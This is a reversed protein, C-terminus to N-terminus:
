KEVMEIMIAIKIPLDDAGEPFPLVHFAFYRRKSVMLVEGEVALVM